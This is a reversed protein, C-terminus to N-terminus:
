NFNSLQPHHKNSYLQLSHGKPLTSALKYKGPNEGIDILRHRPLSLTTNDSASVLYNKGDRKTVKYCERSVKFRRKKMAEKALVIRVYHNIPIDHNKAKQKKILCNAIYQRELKPDNEMDIPKYGTADHVTNNYTDILQKMRKTSFNRYKSHISEYKSRENTINRDRLHRIFSDIIALSTHNEDVVIFQSINHVRLLNVVEPAIFSPEKDSTLSSCKHQSLFHRLTLLVQQVDKSLLPYAEAFRTNINIFIFWFVPHIKSQEHMEITEKNNYEDTKGTNDLLDMMWAHLHDSFIKNFLHKVKLKPPDKVFGAVITKVEEETVNPYNEQVHPWIKEFTRYHLKHIFRNLDLQEM